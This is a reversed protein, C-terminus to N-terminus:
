EQGMERKWAQEAATYHLYSETINHQEEPSLSVVWQEFHIPATGSAADVSALAVARKAAVLATSLDPVIGKEPYRQILADDPNPEAEGASLKSEYAELKAKRNKGVAAQKKKAGASAGKDGSSGAAAEKDGSSAASAGASGTAVVSTALKRRKNGTPGSPQPIAPPQDDLSSAAGGASAMNEVALRKPVAVPCSKAAAAPAKAAIPVCGSSSSSANGECVEVVDTRVNMTFEPTANPHIPSSVLARAFSDEECVRFCEQWAVWEIREKTKVDVMAAIRDIENAIENRIVKWVVADGSKNQFNAFCDMLGDGQEITTELRWACDDAISAAARRSGDPVFEASAPPPKLLGQGRKKSRASVFHNVDPLQTKPKSAFMFRQNIIKGAVMKYVNTPKYTKLRGGFHKVVSFMAVGVALIVSVKKMNAWVCIEFLGGYSGDHRVAKAKDRMAAAVTQEKASASKQLTPRAKITKLKEGM